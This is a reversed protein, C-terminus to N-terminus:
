YHLYHVYHGPTQCQGRGGRNKNPMKVNWFGQIQINNLPAEM